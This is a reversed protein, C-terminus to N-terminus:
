KMHKNEVIDAKEELKMDGLVRDVFNGNRYMANTVYGFEGGQRDSYDTRMLGFSDTWVNDHEKPGWTNDHFLGLWCLVICECRAKKISTLCHKLGCPLMRHEDWFM